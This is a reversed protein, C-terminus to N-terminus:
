AAHVTTVPIGYRRRLEKPLDVALWRSHSQPLTSLVIEDARFGRLGQAVARMPDSDGVMGQIDLGIGRLRELAEELRHEALMQGSLRHESSHALDGVTAFTGQSRMAQETELSPVVLMFLTPEKAAQNSLHAQLREARL